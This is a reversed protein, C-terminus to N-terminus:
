SIQKLLLTQPTGNQRALRYTAFVEKLKLDHIMPESGGKETHSIKVCPSNLCSWLESPSHPSTIM